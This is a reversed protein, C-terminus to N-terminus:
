LPELIKYEISGKYCDESRDWQFTLHAQQGWLGTFLNSISLLLIDIGKSVGVRGRIKGM